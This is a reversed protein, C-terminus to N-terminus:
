PHQEQRTFVVTYAGTDAVARSLANFAQTTPDFTFTGGAEVATSFDVRQLWRAVNLTLLAATPATTVEASARIGELPRTVELSVEFPWSQDDRDAVGALTLSALTLEMSGFTGTVAEVVGLEGSPALLDVTRSGLWEGMSEGPVYHGPHAHATGMVLSWPSWRSSLLVEGEFFRVPGLEVTAEDLTIEFGHENAVSPLSAGVTLPFTTREQLPSCATLLLLLSVLARL